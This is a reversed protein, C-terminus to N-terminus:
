QYVCTTTFVIKDTKETNLQLFSAQCWDFFSEACGRYKIEDETILGVVPSLLHVHPSIYLHLFLSISPHTTGSNEVVTLDLPKM